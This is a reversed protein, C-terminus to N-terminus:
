PLGTLHIQLAFLEEHIAKLKQELNKKEQEKFAIQVVITERETACLDSRLVLWKCRDNPHSINIRNHINKTPDNCIVKAFSPPNYAITMWVQTGAPPDHTIM